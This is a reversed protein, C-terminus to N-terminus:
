GHNLVDTNGDCHSADSEDTKLAALQDKDGASIETGDILRTAM